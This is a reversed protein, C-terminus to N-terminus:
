CRRGPRGAPVAGCLTALAARWPMRRRRAASARWRRAGAAATARARDAGRLALAVAAGGAPAWRGPRRRRARRRRRGVRSGPGEPARRRHVLRPACASCRATWRRGVGQHLGPLGAAAFLHGRAVRVLGRWCRTSCRSRARTTPRRPAPASGPAPPLLPRFHVSDLLTVGLCLLLMLSSCLAPADRFVKRWNARWNRGARAGDRRLGVLAAVLLWIAADTWLLVFKPM